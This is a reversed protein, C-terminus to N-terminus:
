VLRLIVISIAFCFFSSLCVESASVVGNCISVVILVGILVWRRKSLKYTQLKTNQQQQQQQNQYSIQQDQNPSNKSNCSPSNKDILQASKPENNVLLNPERCLLGDFTTKQM